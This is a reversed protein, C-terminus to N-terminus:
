ALAEKPIIQSLTGPCLVIGELEESLVMEKATEYCVM